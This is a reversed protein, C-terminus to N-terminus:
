SLIEVGQNARLTHVDFLCDIACRDARYDPDWGMTIRFVIGSDTGAPAAKSPNLPLVVYSTEVNKSTPEKLPKSVLALADPALAMGHYTLNPASGTSYILQNVYIDMGLARGINGTMIPGEQGVLGRSSSTIIRDDNLLSEEDKPSVILNVGNPQNFLYQPCAADTLKRKISALDEYQLDSGSSGVQNTLNVAQAAIVAEIAEALDTYATALQSRFHDIDTQTRLASSILFDVTKFRNCPLVVSGPAEPQLPYIPTGDVFDQVTHHGLTFVTVTSGKVGFDKSYGKNCFAALCFNRKLPLLVEASLVAALEIANTTLNISGVTM